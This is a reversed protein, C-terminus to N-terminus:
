IARMIIIRAGEEGWGGGQGVADAEAERGEGEVVGAEIVTIGVM